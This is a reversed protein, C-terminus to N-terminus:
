NAQLRHHTLTNQGRQRAWIADEIRAAQWDNEKKRMLATGVAQTAATAANSTISARSSWAAASWTITSEPWSRPLVRATM